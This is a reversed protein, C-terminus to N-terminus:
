ESLRLLLNAITVYGIDLLIKMNKLEALHRCKQLHHSGNSIISLNKEPVSADSRM